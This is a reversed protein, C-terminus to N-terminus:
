TKTGNKDLEKKSQDVDPLKHLINSEPLKEPMAKNNDQDFIDYRNTPRETKRWNFGELKTQEPIIELMPNLNGVPSGVFTIRNIQNEQLYIIINSSEAKNIGIYSNEDAPYYISQGNGNVDIRYLHNGRIFGVMNKGKIQNYKTSDVEQIIFSNNNLYVQNPANSKNEFQIFEATLQNEMSWVVPDNFLQITSDKTFYILSDSVGQLDNRYFRVNNYAILMKADTASTDPITLLTDAHLFLSDGEYYQIWVASDTVTSFQEFDDYNAKKGTVIMKNEYDNIIVNGYANGFGIDDNYFLYDAQIQTNRRKITSNKNLETENTKTNFWGGTSYISTENSVINTKGSFKAIETNTFYQMTDTQMTYNENKLKVNDTFVMRNQRTYYRGMISKLTNASDIITAGYNYYGIETEMNFDLSDTTLTITPDKLTVNKRAKAFQTNGSYNIFQAWLNVTDNSIIHVNGFADVSNSTSYSWASDCILIINEHTLKVDGILRQVDKGISKGSRLSNAHNIDIKKKNRNQAEITNTSIGVIFVLLLLRVIHTLSIKHYPYQRTQM